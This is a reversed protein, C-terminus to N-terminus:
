AALSLILWTQRHAKYVRPAKLVHPRATYGVDILIERAAEIYREYDIDAPFADPLEMLPRCGDTRSVKKHNGTAAHPVKYLIEEGDRAWIYRVVKGLYEGRWTAGGKVTVVTVFERIDTCARITQEIPVGKTLLAVVADSCVNMSPNIMMQTRLDGELRPNALPGKRKTKGDEKVAIYSNVSQSYLATYRTAELEFGTERQWTETIETLLGEMNRPCRFVVGDTNGSVVPIGAAEAREILMLLALQGTLTVAIMLHPAYLISYRSGLKGFCGNVAIKLGDAAAKDGRRKADVRERTIEGFVDLFAPGLAKPYLGSNLIIAPYYSAVDFDILVHEADSSVARNKETSHLGGIGMAYTTEGIPVQKANLWAPMDIKGDAKVVFRTEQLRDLVERLDDRQFRLWEPVKYPFDTGAPTEVKFVREGTVKEVRSKIIAEGMQADSKSRLDLDYKAGMAERLALPEALAEHLTGTADLDNDLYLLTADMEEDTLVHDPEYPLDQMKRGHLRGNLIKLSAFANPQPEILDIHDFKPVRVGIADEVQWYRLGGGIIKDNAAKLQENSAGSAALFIMGQDYNLGNFTVIRHQLMIDRVRDCRAQREAPPTRRSLEITVRKGDGVRKFGIAWFGPYCETDCLLTDRPM